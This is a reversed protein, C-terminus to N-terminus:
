GLFISFALGSFRVQSGFKLDTGQCKLYTGVKCYVKSIGSQQTQEVLVEDKRFMRRPIVFFGGVGVESILGVGSESSKTFLAIPQYRFM